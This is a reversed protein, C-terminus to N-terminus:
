NVKDEARLRQYLAKEEPKARNNVVRYRLIQVLGKRVHQSYASSPYRDLFAAADETSVYDSPLILGEVVRALAKEIYEAYAEKDRDPPPEIRVQITGSRVVDTPQARWPQGEAYFEYNGAQDLLFRTSTGDLLVLAESKREENPGLRMPSVVVDRTTNIQRRPLQQFREGIVRYYIAMRKNQPGLRFHGSMNEDSVNTITLTLRVPEGIYYASRDSGLSITASRMHPVAEPKKAQGGILAVLMTVLIRNNV